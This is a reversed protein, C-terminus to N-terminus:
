RVLALLAILIVLGAVIVGSTWGFLELAERRKGQTLLWLPQGLVLTAEILASIVFLLLLASLTLAPAQRDTPLFRDANTMFTAVLLVYVLAGAANRLGALALHRSSPSM